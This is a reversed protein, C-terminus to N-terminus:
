LNSEGKHTMSLFCCPCFHESLRASGEVCDEADAYRDLISLGITKKRTVSEIRPGRGGLYNARDVM